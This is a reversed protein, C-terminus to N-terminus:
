QGERLASSDGGRVRERTDIEVRVEHADISRIPPPRTFFTHTWTGTGQYMGGTLTSLGLDIADYGPDPDDIAVSEAGSSQYGHLVAFHGGGGRWGIRFALPRGANIEQRIVDYGASGRQKRDLVGARRLPADLVNIQDCERSSGHECCTTLEKEANVMECQTWDTEPDYYASISVTTAAWCWLRQMQDQMTFNLRIWSPTLERWQEIARGFVRRAVGPEELAADTGDRMPEDLQIGEDRAADIILRRPVLPVPIRSEELLRGM